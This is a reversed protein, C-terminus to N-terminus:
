AVNYIRLSEVEKGTAPSRVLAKKFYISKGILAKPSDVFEKCKTSNTVNLSFNWKVEERELEVVPRNDEENIEVSVVVFAQNEDKVDDSKLWSKGTYENWNDLSM